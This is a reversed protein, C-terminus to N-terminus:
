QLSVFFGQAYVNIMIEFSFIILISLEVYSTYDTINEVDEKSMLSDIALYTFILMTYIVILFIIFYNVISLRM